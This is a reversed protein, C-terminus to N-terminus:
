LKTTVAKFGSSPLFDRIVVKLAAPNGAAGLEKVSIALELVPVLIPKYHGAGSL